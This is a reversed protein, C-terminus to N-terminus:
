FLDRDEWESPYSRVLEGGKFEDDENYRQESGNDVIGFPLVEDELAKANADLLNRRIDINTLEKFYEQNSAWAFMVLCMVLDDHAGQEAEYSTGRKNAVFTTLEQIIDFDNVELKDAEIIAKLTSVGLRKLQKTTRIGLQTKAGGFGSSVVQGARGKWESTMINEYEHEHHLLDAVQAGIDNVEIMVFAENYKKAAALVVNPYLMPAISNNRYTAVVKYPVQSVDFVVFASYDNGLGRSTDVTIMYTHRPKPEEFIKVSEWSQIPNHFAIMRLKAPDILTNSSGLFECGFEQMFQRESTNKITQEKWADDRGPVDRWHVDVTQYESRQEDADVWMKYFMNMGNPTSSILVRSTKGSTITPYVSQFFEEQVYHPVFAFEDLYVLNMTLGRIATSSTSSAIIKSGNELEINGKNWEVVGQQIFFPLNEYALKIRALIERSMSAKNALIAINFDNNFLAFWLILAAMTTTKGSQRPMKCITFRNRIVTDMIKYQYPYAAFNILGEDISTIKVYNQCFHDINQSVLGLESLQEDSYALQVNAKKLKPNGLYYNNKDNEFM